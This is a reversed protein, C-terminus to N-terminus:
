TLIFHSTIRLLFLHWRLSLSFFIRCSIYWLLSYDLSTSLCTVCVPLLPFNRCTIVNPMTFQPPLLSCWLNEERQHRLAPPFASVVSHHRAVLPNQVSRCSSIKNTTTLVMSYWPSKSKLLMVRIEFYKPLGNLCWFSLFNSIKEYQLYFTHFFM